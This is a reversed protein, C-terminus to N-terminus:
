GEPMFLGLGFHSLHGLALPGSVPESFRLRLIASPKSARGQPSSRGAGAPGAALEGVETQAVAALGAGLVADAGRLVGPQGVQGQVLQVLVADPAGDDRQGALEGGPGLHERQDLM